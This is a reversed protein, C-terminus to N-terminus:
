ATGPFFEPSHNERECGFAEAQAAGVEGETYFGRAFKAPDPFVVANPESTVQAQAPASALLWSTALAAILKPLRPRM